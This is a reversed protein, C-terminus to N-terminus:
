AGIEIADQIHLKVTSESIARGVQQNVQGSGEIPVNTVKGATTSVYIADDYSFEETRAVNNVVTSYFQYVQVTGGEKVATKTIGIAPMRSWTTAQAKLIRAETESLCIVSLAPIDEGATYKEEETTITISALPLSGTIM